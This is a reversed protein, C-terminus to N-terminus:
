FAFQHHIAQEHKQLAEKQSVCVQEISVSDGKAFAPWFDKQLCENYQTNYYRVEERAKAEVTKKQTFNM